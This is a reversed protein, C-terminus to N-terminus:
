KVPPDALFPRPAIRPCSCSYIWIKTKQALNLCLSHGQDEHNAVRKQSVRRNTLIKEPTNQLVSLPNFRLIAKMFIPVSKFIFCPTFIWGHITRSLRVSEPINFSAPIGVLPVTTPSAVRRLGHWISCSAHLHGRGSRTEFERRGPANRCVNWTRLRAGKSEGLQYKCVLKCPWRRGETTQGASDFNFFGKNDNERKRM